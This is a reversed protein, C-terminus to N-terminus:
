LRTQLEDVQLYGSHSAKQFGESIQNRNSYQGVHVQTADPGRNIGRDGLRGGWGGKISYMRLINLWTNPVTRERIHGSFTGGGLLCGAPM